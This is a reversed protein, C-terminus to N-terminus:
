EDEKFFAIAEAKRKDLFWKWTSGDIFPNQEGGLQTIKERHKSDGLHNGLHVEPVLNYVKDISKIYDSRLSHPLGYKDLYTKIM